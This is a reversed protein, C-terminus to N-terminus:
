KALSTTTSPMIRRRAPFLRIGTKAEILLATEPAAEKIRRGIQQGFLRERQM